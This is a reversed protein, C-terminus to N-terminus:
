AQLKGTDYKVAVNILEQTAALAEADDHERYVRKAKIM